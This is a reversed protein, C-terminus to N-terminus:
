KEVKKMSFTATYTTGDDLLRLSTWNMVGGEISAIEWWERNEQEEGENIWRTCLLTGDVFYMATSNVSAWNGNEDLSYYVYSGDELYEWRHLEGDDYESGEASTVHGEWLGLIDSAYDKTVKSWVVTGSHESELQGNLYLRNTADTQMQTGTISKVDLVAEFGITKNLSGSLTIRDGELAVTSPAHNTWIEQDANTGLNSASITGETTSMITYVVRGNTPVTNGNTQTMMWKGVIQQDFSETTNERDCSALLLAAVTLTLFSKKM